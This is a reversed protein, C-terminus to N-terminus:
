FIEQALCRIVRSCINLTVNDFYIGFPTLKLTKGHFDHDLANITVRNLGGRSFLGLKVPAKADPSIRLM